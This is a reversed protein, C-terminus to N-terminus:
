DSELERHNDMLTDSNRWKDYSELSDKTFLNNSSLPLQKQPGAAWDMELRVKYKGIGMVIMINNIFITKRCDRYSGEISPPPVCM